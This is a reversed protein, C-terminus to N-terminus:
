NNETSATLKKKKKKELVVWGIDLVLGISGVVALTRGIVRGGSYGGSFTSNVSVGNMTFDANATKYLIRHAAQRMYYRSSKPYKEMTNKAEWYDSGFTTLMQSEGSTIAQSADLYGMTVADTITWGEYGWENYLLDTILEENAGSWILGVSSYCTMIQSPEYIDIAIEFAKLYTERLAQENIFCMAGATNSQEYLVFHKLSTMVGNEECGKITYGAQKGTLVSDESYYEFDRGGRQSRHINAIPAYWLEIEAHICEKAIMEGFEEALESNWTSGIVIQTPYSVGYYGTVAFAMSVGAPGDYADTEPVGLRSIAYTGYCGASYLTLLEEDSLQDLFDDWKPDDFDLGRMEILKIGNNADTVVEPVEDEKDGVGYGKQKKAEQEETLTIKYEKIADDYNAFKNARSLYTVQDYLGVDDFLNTVETGTKENTNFKKTEDIKFSVKDRCTHSDTQLRLEYEGAELLYTKENLYDYSSLDYFDVEFDVTESEGPELLKTKAYDVLSVEAKEIGGNYYPAHNYLQVVDKGAVDGTNTVKVSLSVKESDYDVNQSVIEWDFSTYSLGYGFPYQVVEDYNIVGEAAATEYWKYGEYIGESYIVYPKDTDMGLVGQIYSVQQYDEDIYTLQGSNIWGPSATPDYPYTDTLKGSPNVTGNLIDCVANLGNIGTLGIWLVADVDIEELEALSFYNGCNVLVIVTNFNERLAKLTALEDDNFTIDEVEYDAHESSPISFMYIAVDSYAKANEIASEGNINAVSSDSIVSVPLENTDMLVGEGWNSTQKTEDTNDKYFQWLEENVEYGSKEMAEKLDPASVSFDEIGTSNNIDSYTFTTSTSGSGNGYTHPEISTTGFLNVKTKKLPLVNNDNKLLVAGEAEIQYALELSDNPDWDDTIQVEADAEHTVTGKNELGLMYDASIFLNCMVLGVIIMIITVPFLVIRTIKAALQKKTLKEKKKSKDKKM